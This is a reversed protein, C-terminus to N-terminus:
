SIQNGETDFERYKGITLLSLAGAVVLVSAVILVQTQGDKDLLKGFYGPALGAGMGFCGYLIGYVRGYGKMGFYRSVLFAMIDYEVGAAFGIMIIAISNMWIPSDPMYFIYCSVAPLILLGFAVGPAWFRDILYGGIMRGFVVSLGILGIGMFRSASMQDTYGQAELIYKLVQILGSVAFGILLFGLGIVYFRWDKFVDVIQMGAIKSSDITTKNALAEEELPDRFFVYAMPLAVLLPLMALAVYASRWGSTDIMFQTFSPAVFGFLGTGMLAVGLALGRNVNFNNNIARTWTIPLTGSGFVAMFFFIMYFQTLSGSLLSLSFMGISLFVLSILAVRRAGYKDTLYGAVPGGVLVGATLFTFTFLVEGLNWGFEAMIPKSLVALTYFPLPSLGLGIGFMSSLVIKWGKSWEEKGSLAIETM